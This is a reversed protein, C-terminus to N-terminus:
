LNLSPRPDQWQTEKTTANFWYFKGPKSHSEVREWDSEAKHMSRRRQRELVLAQKLASTATPSSPGHLAMGPTRPTKPTLTMRSMGHSPPSSARRHGIPRNPTVPVRLPGGYLQQAKAKPFLDMVNLARLSNEEPVESYAAAWTSFSSAYPRFAQEVPKEKSQDRNNHISITSADVALGAGEFHSVSSTSSASSYSSSSNLCDFATATLRMTQTPHLDALSSDSLSSASTLNSAQLGNNTSADLEQDDEQGAAKVSGSMAEIIGRALETSKLNAKVGLVKAM